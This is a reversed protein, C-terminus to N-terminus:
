EKYFTELSDSDGIFRWHWPEYTVGQANDKPFSLEFGYRAANKQLWAFAPTTEFSVTLDTQPQTGDLLDVAYGSHHESYGPPASVEARVKPTQGREAQVEFFLYEQDELTRFGSLAKLQIGEARAQKVMAELKQTAAPKLKVQPNQSFPVLEAPDAIAYKRHGLLSPIEETSTGPSEGLSDTQPPSAIATEAVSDTTLATAGDTTPGQDATATAIPRSVYWATTGGAGFVLTALASLWLWTRDRKRQNTKPPVQARRAMPVDQAVASLNVPAIEVPDSKASDM